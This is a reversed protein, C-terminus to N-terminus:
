KRRKTEYRDEGLAVLMRDRVGKELLSCLYEMTRGKGDKVCRYDVGGGVEGSGNRRRRKDFEVLVRVVKVNENEVACPLVDMLVVDEMMEREELVELLVKVVEYHGYHCAVWLPTETSLGFKGRTICLDIADKNRKSLKVFLEVVDVFGYKCAVYFVSIGTDEEIPNMDIITAKGGSVDMANSSEMLLIELMQSRGLMCCLQIASCAEIMRILWSKRPALPALRYNAQVEETCNLCWEQVLYKVINLCDRNIASVLMCCGENMKVNREQMSLEFVDQIDEDSDLFEDNLKLTINKTDFRSWYLCKMMQQHLGIWENCIAADIEIVRGTHIDNKYNAHIAVLAQKLLPVLHKQNIQENLVRTRRRSERLRSRLAEKNGTIRLGLAVLNEKLEFLNLPQVNEDPNKVLGRYRAHQHYLNTETTNKKMPDDEDKGFVAERKHKAELKFAQIYLFNMQNITDRDAYCTCWKEVHIFELMSRIMADDGNRNYIYEKYQISQDIEIEKQLKVIKEIEYAAIGAHGEVAIMIEIITARPVDFRIKLNHIKKGWEPPIIVPEIQKTEITDEEKEEESGIESISGCQVVIPINKLRARYTETVCWLRMTPVSERVSTVHPSHLFQEFKIKDKNDNYFSSFPKSISISLIFAPCLDIVDYTSLIDADNGPWQRIAFIDIWVYRDHRAGTTCAAILDGFPASWCHSVFVTAPGFCDTVEPLTGYRCRTEMTAPVIIDRVIQWTPKMWCDHDYAFAILADTRIGLKHIKSAHHKSSFIPPSTSEKKTSTNINKNNSKNSGIQTVTLGDSNLDEILDPDLGDQARNKQIHTRELNLRKINLKTKCEECQNLKSLNVRDHNCLHHPIPNTQRQEHYINRQISLTMQQISNQFTTPRIEIPRTSHIDSYIPTPNDDNADNEIMM